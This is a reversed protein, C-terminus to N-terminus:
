GARSRPPRGRRGGLQRDLALLVDDAVAVDDVELEVDSARTMGGAAPMRRAVLRAEHRTEDGATEFWGEQYSVVELGQLLGPLEGDKLLFPGPPRPHRSLNSLTPQLYVLLGEPALRDPFAAFLERRLFNFSLIVDFPGAPLPDM